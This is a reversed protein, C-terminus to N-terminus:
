SPNWDLNIEDDGSSRNMEFPVTLIRIGERDGPDMALFRIKPCTIQCRNQSTAGINLTLTGEVNTIIENLWDYSTGYEPDFSGVPNRGTLVASKIGTTGNVDTRLAIENQMDFEISNIIHSQAGGTLTTSFVASLLVPPNTTPIGTLTTLAGSTIDNITGRMTFEMFVPEGVTGVIRMNGGCGVFRKHVGDEEVQITLTTIGTSLPLVDATSTTLGCALFLRVWHDPPNTDDGSGRIPLRFTITASQNGSLSTYRSLDKHQPDRKFLAFEPTAVVDYALVGDDAAVAAYTGNPSEAQLLIQTRRTLM